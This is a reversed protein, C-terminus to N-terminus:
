VYGHFICTTKFLQLKSLKLSDNLLTNKSSTQVLSQAVILWFGDESVISAENNFTTVFAVSTRVLSQAVILWFGDESVISAENNFTTM